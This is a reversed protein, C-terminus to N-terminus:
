KKKTQPLELRDVASRKSTLATKATTTRAIKRDKQTNKKQDQEGRTIEISDATM